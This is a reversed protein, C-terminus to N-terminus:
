VSFDLGFLVGTLTLLLWSDPDDAARWWRVLTWLILGTFVATMIYPTFAVSYEWSTPGFAFALAGSAAAIIVGRSDQREEGAARELAFAVAYVLVAALAGLVGAFLNLRHAPSDGPLLHVVPWGLLVMVLSGPAGTVGLTGAALSYDSSDWWDIEPYATRWFVAIAILAVAVAGARRPPPM